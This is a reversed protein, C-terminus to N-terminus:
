GKGVALSQQAEFRCRPPGLAPNYVIVHTLLAARMRLVKMLWPTGQALLSLEQTISAHSSVGLVPSGLWTEFLITCKSVLLTRRVLRVLAKACIRAANPHSKNSRNPTLLM